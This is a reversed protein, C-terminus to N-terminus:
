DPQTPSPRSDISNRKRLWFEIMMDVLRVEVDRMDAIREDSLGEATAGLLKRYESLSILNEPDLSEDDMSSLMDEPVAPVIFGGANFPRYGWM